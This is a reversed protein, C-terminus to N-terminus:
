VEAHFFMRALTSGIENLSVQLGDLYEHLGTEMIQQIRAYDLRARLEGLMREGELRHSGMPTGTLAHLSAQADIVCRHISRPFDRDLLLFQAVQAPTTVQHMQRYMQLASASNLLAAWGLQDLTTGVDRVTPLLTFYKVDVIRSTKDARELMRGLNAFHWADGRSLTANTVGEFYIGSLKVKGYFESMEGPYGAGDKAGMVMWYFENLQQWMERSIIERITRANERARSVSSLISNPYEADFTLFRTVAEPTADGYREIFWRHDGTTLVLSEWNPRQGSPLDLMLHLNVDVFRAVNEAREVYRSMWYVAEAVRSLM